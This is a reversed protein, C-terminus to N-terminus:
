YCGYLNFIQKEVRFAKQQQAYYSIKLLFTHAGRKDFWM